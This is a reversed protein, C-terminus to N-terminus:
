CNELPEFTDRSPRCGVSSNRNTAAGKLFNCSLPTSEREVSKELELSRLVKKRMKQYSNVAIRKSGWAERSVKFCEVYTKAPGMRMTSPVFQRRCKLTSKLPQSGSVFDQSRTESM